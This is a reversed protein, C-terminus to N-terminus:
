SFPPTRGNRQLQRWALSGVLLGMLVLAWQSLTPIAAAVGPSQQQALQATYTGAQGNVRYVRSGLDGEDFTLVNAGNTFIAIDTDGSGNDPDDWYVDNPAGSFYLSGFPAPGYKATLQAQTWTTSGVTFTATFGALTSIYSTPLECTPTAVSYTVVGSGGGSLQFSIQCTLAFASSSALMLVIGANVYFLLKKLM